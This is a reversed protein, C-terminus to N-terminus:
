KLEKQIIAAAEAERDDFALVELTALLQHWFDQQRPSNRVMIEYKTISSIAVQPYKRALEYFFTGEKNPKRFYDILVSTDILLM